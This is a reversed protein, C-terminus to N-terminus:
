IAATGQLGGEYTAGIGTSPFGAKINITPTVAGAGNFARTAIRFHLFDGTGRSNLSGQYYITPTSPLSSSGAKHWTQITLFPQGSPSELPAFIDLPYTTDGSDQKLREGMWRGTLHARRVIAIDNDTGSNGGSDALWNSVGGTKAAYDTMYGLGRMTERGFSSDIDGLPVVYRDSTNHGNTFIHFADSGSADLKYQQANTHSDPFQM